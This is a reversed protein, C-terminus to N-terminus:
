KENIKFDLIYFLIPLGFYWELKGVIMLVIVFVAAIAHSIRFGAWSELKM